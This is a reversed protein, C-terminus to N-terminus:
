RGGGILARAPSADAFLGRYIRDPRAAPAKLRVRPSNSVPLAPERRGVGPLQAQTARSAGFVGGIAGGAAAALWAARWTKQEAYPAHENAAMGTVFGLAFATGAGILAWKVIAEARKNTRPGALAPSAILLSVIMGAAIIPRM